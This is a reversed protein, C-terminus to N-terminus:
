RIRLFIFHQMALHFYLLCVWWGVEWPYTYYRKKLPALCADESPKKKEKKTTSSNSSLAECKSPLSQEVQDM